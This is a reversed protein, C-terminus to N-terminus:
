SNTKLCNDVTQTKLDIRGNIDFKLCSKSEPLRTVGDEGRQIWMKWYCRVFDVIVFVYLLYSSCVVVVSYLAVTTEWPFFDAFQYVFGFSVATYLFWMILKLLFRESSKENKPLSRYKFLCLKLLIFCVCISVCLVASSYDNRRIARAITVVTNPIMIIFYFSFWRCDDTPIEHHDRQIRTQPIPSLKNRLPLQIGM